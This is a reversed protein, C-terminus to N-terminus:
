RATDTNIYGTFTTSSAVITSIVVVGNPAGLGPSVDYIQPMNLTASTATYKFIEKDATAAAGTAANYIKMSDTVAGPVVIIKGVVASATQLINTTTTVGLTSSAPGIKSTTWRSINNHRVVGDEPGVHDSARVAILAILSISALALYTIKKM